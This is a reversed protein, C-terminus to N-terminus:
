GRPDVKSYVDSFGSYDSPEVLYVNIRLINKLSSGAAVLIAEHNKLVQEKL